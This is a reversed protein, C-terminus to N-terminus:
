KGPPPAALYTPPATTLVPAPPLPPPVPATPDRWVLARASILNGIWQPTPNAQTFYAIAHADDGKAACLRGLNTQAGWRLMHYAPRGPGPEPLLRLLQEFFDKALRTNGQELHCLALFYTAYVKLAEQKDEPMPKKTDLTTSSIRFAVYEEIAAPIEGHLQKIRAYVLPYVRPNFLALTHITAEVFRPDSFLMSEVLAPLEWLGVKGAHTGLAQIFRDHEDAPARYLLTRDKGALSRQLLAMRPSRYDPSSDLMVGIKSTSGLLAVRTTGYPAQGPLDLQALVAPDSLADDLTAVGQGGPGPIELGIRADFLYLKGDILAACTWVIPEKAEPPTYTLLGVDLGLQRCLVMFLWGREAWVGEAETAMGRILVDYPRAPVHRLGPPALSGPPVLEIQEMIWRFVRRARPLDDGTGGIRSAIKHYLM